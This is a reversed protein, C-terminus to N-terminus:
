RQVELHPKGDSTKQPSRGDPRLTANVKQRLSSFKQSAVVDVPADFRVTVDWYGGARQAASKIVGDFPHGLYQGTIRQGPFWTPEETKPAMANLTNWDRVGHQHAIMELARSHSVDKGQSALDRRLRKAQSKLVDRSPLTQTM